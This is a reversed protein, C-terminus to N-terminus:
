LFWMADCGLLFCEEYDGSRFSWIKCLILRCPETASIYHTEQSTHFPNKYRLLRCEEYDGGHFGWIKCLMLRSPQTASVYHAEQSTLFPYKYRLLRCDEYHGSHFDWIKYIIISNEQKTQSVVKFNSSHTGAFLRNVELPNCPTIDRIITRM